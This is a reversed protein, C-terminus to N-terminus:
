VERTITIASPLQENLVKTVYQNISLGENACYGKLVSHLDRPLRITLQILEPRAAAGSM